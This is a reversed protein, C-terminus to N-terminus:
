DSPPSADDWFRWPAPDRIADPPILHDRVTAVLRDLGDGTRASLEIDAHFAPPGLDRRLGVRLCERGADAEPWGAIDRLMPPAQTHDGVLVILDAAAAISIAIARAECESDGADDRLGPTDIWRLVLGQFDLQVGVHDRTTGPADAVISVARRALANTLTSKGVNAPGLVVVLPPDVLRRLIRDRHTAPISDPAAISRWRRPQDLLLDIAAPSAARALMDLMRAEIPDSTAPDPMASRHRAVGVNSLESGLRAIIAPGGHPMLHLCTPSWRVVVGTDVGCLDRLVPVGISPLNLELRAAASELADSAEADIQLIAIAAALPATRLAWFVAPSTSTAPGPTSHRDSQATEPSM